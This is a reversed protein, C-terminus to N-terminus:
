ARKLEKALRELAKKEIRSVYSRSIRLMEGIERQTLERQGSLGYRLRIIEQERDDLAPLAAYLEEVQLRLAVLDALPEADDALKEGLAVGSGDGGTGLVDDISLGHNYKKTARLYM